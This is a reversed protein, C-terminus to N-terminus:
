QPPHKGCHRPPYKNREISEQLLECHTQCEIGTRVPQVLMEVRGEEEHYTRKTERCVPSKGTDGQDGEDNKPHLKLVEM